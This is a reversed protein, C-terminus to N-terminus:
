DLHHPVPITTAAIAELKMIVDHWPLAELMVPGQHKRQISYVTSYGTINSGIVTMYSYCWWGCRNWISKIKVLPVDHIFLFSHWRECTMTGQACSPYSGHHDISIIPFSSDQLCLGMYVDEFRFFPCDPSVSLIYKAVGTTLMYMPGGCHKPFVSYPYEEYSLYYKNGTKNRIPTSLSLCAGIMVDSNTYFNTTQLLSAINIYMDQDAKVIWKATPCYKIVWEFAALSKLTLNRYKDM